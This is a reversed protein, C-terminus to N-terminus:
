IFIISNSKFKVPKQNTNDEKLDEDIKINNLECYYLIKRKIIRKIQNLNHLSKNAIRKWIAVAKAPPEIETYAMITLGNSSIVMEKTTPATSPKTILKALRKKLDLFLLNIM